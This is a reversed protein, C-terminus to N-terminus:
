RCCFLYGAKFIVNLLFLHKHLLHYMLIHKMDYVAYM